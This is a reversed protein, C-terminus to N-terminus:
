RKYVICMTMKQWSFTLFKQVAFTGLMKEAFFILVNSKTLILLGLLGKAVSETLSIITHVVLGM